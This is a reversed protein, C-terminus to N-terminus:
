RREKVSEDPVAPARLASILVFIDTGGAHESQMADASTAVATGRTTGIVRLRNDAGVEAAAVAGWVPMSALVAGGDPEIMHAVADGALHIRGTKDTALMWASSALIRSWELTGDPAFSALFSQGRPPTKIGLLPEGALGDLDTSETRGAMLIRGDATGRVSQAEAGGSGDLTSYVTATPNEAFQIRTLFSRPPLAASAWMNGSPDFSVSSIALNTLGELFLSWTAGRDTSRYLGDPTALVLHAPDKPDFALGNALFEVGGLRPAFGPALDIWTDGGDDSRPIRASAADTRIAYVSGDNPHAFVAYVNELVPPV